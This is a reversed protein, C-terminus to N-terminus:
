VKLKSTYIFFLFHLTKDKVSINSNIKNSFTKFYLNRPLAFLNKEDNNHYRKHPIYVIGLM